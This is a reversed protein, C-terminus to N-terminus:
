AVVRAVSSAPEGGAAHDTAECLLSNNRLAYDLAQDVFWHLTDVAPEGSQIRESVAADLSQSEHQILAFLLESKDPFHRYLTGKGIQAAEAIASMTVSGVGDADFLRRATQLILEHNRLADSRSKRENTATVESM